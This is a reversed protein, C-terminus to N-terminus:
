DFSKPVDFPDGKVDLFRQPLEGRGARPHHPFEIGYAGAHVALEVDSVWGAPVFLQHLNVRAVEVHRCFTRVLCHKGGSSVISAWYLDRRDVVRNGRVVLVEITHSDHTLLGYRALLETNSFGLSMAVENLSCWGWNVKPFEWIALRGIKTRGNIMGGKTPDFMGSQIMWERTIERPQKAM